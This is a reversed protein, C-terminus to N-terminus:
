SILGSLLVLSWCCGPSPSQSLPLCFSLYGSLCSSFFYLCFHLVNVSEQRVRSSKSIEKNSMITFKINKPKSSNSLLLLKLKSIQLGPAKVIKCFLCNISIMAAKNLRKQSNVGTRTTLPSIHHSRGFLGLNLINQRVM